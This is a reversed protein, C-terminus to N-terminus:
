VAGESHPFGGIFLKVKGISWETTLTSLTGTLTLIKDMTREAGASEFIGMSPNGGAGAASASQGAPQSAAPAAAGQQPVNPSATPVSQRAPLPNSFMAPAQGHVFPCCVVALVLVAHFKRM